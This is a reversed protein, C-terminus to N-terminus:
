EIFDCNSQYRLWVLVRGFFLIHSWDQKYIDICFYQIFNKYISDLFVDFGDSVVILYAEDWPHMTPEIYLFENIYYLIYVFEFFFM